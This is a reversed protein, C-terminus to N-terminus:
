TPISDVLMTCMPIAVYTDGQMQRTPLWMCYKRHLRLRNLILSHSTYQCLQEASNYCATLYFLHEPSTAADAMKYRLFPNIQM